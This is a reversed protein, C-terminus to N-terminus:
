ELNYNSIKYLLLIWGFIFSLGGFPAVMGLKSIKFIAILYLSGSFLLIGAIFLYGVGNLNLKTILMILGSVMLAISHFMQYHIATKFVDMKDSIISELSHAGFAGILVCLLSFIAGIIILMM